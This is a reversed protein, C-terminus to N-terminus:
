RRWGTSSSPVLLPVMMCASEQPVCSGSGFQAQFFDFGRRVVPRPKSRGNGIGQERSQALLQRGQERCCAKSTPPFWACWATSPTPLPISVPTYHRVQLEGLLGIALMQIGAVILVSGIVFMPGHQRMVDLQPDLIKMGLLTAAMCSGVTIGLLGFGGFFHLPRSLYKLLFRITM